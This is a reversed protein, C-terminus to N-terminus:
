PHSPYIGSLAICFNLALFPQLNTHPQSGGSPGVAGSAFSTNASDTFATTHTPAVLADGSVPTGHPTATQHENYVNAAHMHAPMQAEDLTVQTTGFTDGVARPSLGPGQGQACAARGHFDPLAFTTTGNGGFQTGLLSFLTTNQSIPLLQGQCFAWGQPAFDFGFLQIEGIFPDSM